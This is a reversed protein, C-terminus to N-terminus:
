EEEASEGATEGDNKQQSEQPTMPATQPIDADPDVPEPQKPPRKALDELFAQAEQKLEDPKDSREELGIYFALQEAADQRMTENEHDMLSVCTKVQLDRHENHNLMEDFFRQALPQPLEPDAVLEMFAPFDLNLGHALAEERELISLDKNNVIQLLRAAAEKISVRDDALIEDVLPFQPGNEGEESISTDTPRKGATTRGPTGADGGMSGDPKARSTDSGHDVASQAETGGSERKSSTVFWLLLGIVVIGAIALMLKPMRQNYGGPHAMPTPNHTRLFLM